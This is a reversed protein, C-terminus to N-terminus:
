VDGDLLVVEAETEERRVIRGRLLVNEREVLVDLLMLEDQRLRDNRIHHATERLPPGIFHSGMQDVHVFRVIMQQRVRMHWFLAKRKTDLARKVESAKVAVRRVGWARVKQEVPLNPFGAVQRRNILFVALIVTLPQMPCQHSALARLFLNQLTQTLYPSVIRHNQHLPVLDEDHLIIESLATKQHPHSFVMQKQCTSGMLLQLPFLLHLVSCALVLILLPPLHLVLGLPQRTLLLLQKLNRGIREYGYMKAIALGKPGFPGYELHVEPLDTKM